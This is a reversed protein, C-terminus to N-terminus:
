GLSRATEKASKREIAVQWFAQWTSDAFESRVRESAWALMREEYEDDWATRGEDPLNALLAHMGTDGTGQCQRSRRDVLDRVKNTTITYLWSRFTGRVPDYELRPAATAVTRLVDQTVDAADADQLGRKRAFSYVVPAYIEVFQQWSEQDATDRIRVLLSARTLPLESM